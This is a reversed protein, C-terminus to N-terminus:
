EEDTDVDKKGRVAIDGFVVVTELSLTTCEVVIELVVDEVVETLFALLLLLLLVMALMELTFPMM